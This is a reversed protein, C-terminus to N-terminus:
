HKLTSAIGGLSRPETGAGVDPVECGGTVGTGLSVTGEEPNWLDAQMGHM